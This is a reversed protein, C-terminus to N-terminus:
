FDFDRRIFSYCRVPVFAWYYHCICHAWKLGWGWGSGPDVEEEGGAILGGLEMVEGLARRACEVPLVADRGIEVVEATSLLNRSIM